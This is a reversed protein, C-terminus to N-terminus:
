KEEEPEDIEVLKYENANYNITLKYWKIDNAIYDDTILIAHLTHKEGKLGQSIYTEHMRQVYYLTDHIVFRPSQQVGEVREICNGTDTRLMM